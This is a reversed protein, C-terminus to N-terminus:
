FLSKLYPFFTKAIDLMFPYLKSEALKEQPILGTVQNLADIMYVLLATLLTFIFVSLLLGLVRNLFGTAGAEIAKDIINGFLSLVLAVAAFIAVFAIFKAWFGEIHLYQQVLPEASGSFKLALTIGLYRVAFSIIQKVLGNKIGFYLSPALCVLIIIDVTGM